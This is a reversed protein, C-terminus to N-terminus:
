SRESPVLSSLLRGVENGWYRRHFGVMHIKFVLQKRHYKIKGRVFQKNQLHNRIKEISVGNEGECIVKTYCTVTLYFVFCRLSGKCFVFMCAVFFGCAFCVFVGWLFVVGQVIEKRLYQKLKTSLM